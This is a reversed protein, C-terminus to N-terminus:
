WTTWFFLLVIKGRYDELKVQNGDVDEIRFGPAILKESFTYVSASPLIDDAAYAAEGFVFSNWIGFIILLVTVREM